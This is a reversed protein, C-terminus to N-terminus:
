PNQWWANVTSIMGYLPEYDVYGLDGWYGIRDIDSYYLPITYWGNLLVRDLATVATELADRDTALAIERALADVAPDAVGPYNRTGPTQASQSGWYTLQETGPSLSVRWWHVIADFDFEDLRAQYQASDVTRITAEIGLRDLNSQLAIALREDGSSGLLIEFTFPAGTEANVRRGDEVIWGAEELLRGAERLNARNNGSGDTEPLDIPRTFVAPDLDDRFRDLLALEPGEPLGTAAMDTNSFYSETRNYLGRLYTRNVWEFDFAWNLAERVRIDDFPARRTNFAFARMGGPRGHRTEFLTVRGDRVAPFDYATDWRDASFELRYNVDGAEFAALAANGDRYYDYVLRDFNMQGNFAPLDAGWWDEVREFVLRRGPDVEILRYPGAGLPIDLSTEDFARDAYWAESLVPMLALLLATERDHTGDFTFRIGRDGIRRVEAVKGHAVRRSPTGETALTEFTFIVDDVTIPTGDHWRADPHLTFEVWSRDEPTAVTEAVYGYLSFPEDWSREMLRPLHYEAVGDGVSGLVINPNLSDFSGVSARALTGGTPADPDAFPMHAAGLAAPQGHMAIGTTAPATDDQAGAAAPLALGAALAVACALPHRM